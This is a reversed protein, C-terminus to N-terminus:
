CGCKACLRFIIVKFIHTFDVFCWCCAFSSFFFDPLSFSFPLTAASSFCVSSFHVSFELLFPFQLLKATQLPEASAGCESIKNRKQKTESQETAGKTQSCVCLFVNICRWEQETWRFQWAINSARRLRKSSIFCVRYKRKKRSRKTM